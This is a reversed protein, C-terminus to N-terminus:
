EEHEIVARTVEAGFLLVVSSFYVWLMLIITSGAVGYFTPFRSRGVYLGIFTEIIAMSIGTLIAGPWVQRWTLEREPLAKFAIACFLSLIIPM